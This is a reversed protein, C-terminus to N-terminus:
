RRGQLLERAIVLRQVQNTGEFISFVRADRMMREVGFDAIYGYGGLVQVATSTVRNVMETVFLKTAASLKVIDRDGEDYRAAASHVLARSAQVDTEMDALMFQIAQLDAIPQGFQRREPAYALAADLAGQAIGLALSGTMIRGKDLATLAIRMGAGVEGVVATEPVRVDDLVVSCTPSGRLGMKREVKDVSWGGNARTVLFATIGEDSRAFVTLVDAVNAQTIFCKRGSIVWAGGDRRARARLSAADSGAEPETLAFSCLWEGSAFRPLFKRKQEESGFLLVPGAGLYQNGLLMGSNACARAIEECVIALTLLSGDLGGYEPPAVASFVDHECFLRRVEEPFEGRGDIDAARPRLREQALRRVGDRLQERDIGTAVTL